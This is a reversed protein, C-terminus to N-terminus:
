TAGSLRLSRLGGASTGDRGGQVAGDQRYGLRFRRRDIHQICAVDNRRSAELDFGWGVCGIHQDYQEVVHSEALRTSEAAWDIHGGQLLQGVVPQAIILKM